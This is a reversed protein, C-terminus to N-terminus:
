KYTEPSFVDFLEHIFSIWVSTFPTILAPKEVSGEVSFNCLDIDFVTNTSIWTNKLVPQRPLISSHGDIYTLSCAHAQLYENGRGYSDEDNRCYCRM